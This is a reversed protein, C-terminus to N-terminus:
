LMNELLGAMSYSIFTSFTLYAMHHHSMDSTDSGSTATHSPTKWCNTVCHSRRGAYSLTEQSMAATASSLRTAAARLPVMHCLSVWDCLADRLYVVGSIESADWHEVHVGFSLQPFLNQSKPDYEFCRFSTTAKLTYESLVSTDDLFSLMLCCYRHCFPMINCHLSISMRHMWHLVENQQDPVKWSNGFSAAYQSVIGGMTTFDDTAGLCLYTVSACCLYTFM